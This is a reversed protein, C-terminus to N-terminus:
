ESQTVTSDDFSPDFVWYALRAAALAGQCGIWILAQDSSAAKLISYQCIYAVAALASLFLVALKVAGSNIFATNGWFHLVDINNKRVQLLNLTKQGHDPKGMLADWKGLTLHKAPRNFQREYWLPFGVLLILCTHLGPIAVIKVWTWDARVIELLWTTLGSCIVLVSFILIANQRFANEGRLNGLNIVIQHEWINIEDRSVTVIPTTVSSFLRKTKTITLGSQSFQASVVECDFLAGSVPTEGPLFGFIGRISDLNFGASACHKLGLAIKVSSKVLGLVGLLSLSSAVVTGWGFQSALVNREVGDTCFLGLLAALDQSGSALNSATDSM